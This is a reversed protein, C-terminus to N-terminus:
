VESSFKIETAKLQEVKEESGDMANIFIRYTNGNMTGLFEYCLVEEALDSEIIALNHERIEVNPNVKSRAQEESIAPKKIDRKEHNMFYDRSTMALIDGNDLAAKVHISDPYIRVGDITSVYTFVGEKEYQRSQILELGPLKFQKLYEEAKQQGEHLSIKTKNVPREVMVNLPHGGKVSIDAYGNEDGKQYSVMYTQVDAGKSTKTVNLKQGKDLAFLKRAIELAQKETIEEGNLGRFEHNERSVGTLTPGADEEGFGAVSKEVTQFGDIITNDGQTDNTALALQVDMWRLNNELVMHQVKRLENKIVGSQEYLQELTKVEEDTLPKNSLDRIAARYTFDGIDHLFEETKNFPLLALPLQGVDAQAESALRWIKALQPSLQQQTNMALVTGIKDHLLDTHYSLDHFARQYSNEAQILIANKDQHEQYGWVGAGVLGLTLISILIWRAM